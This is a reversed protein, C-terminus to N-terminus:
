YSSFPLNQSNTIRFSTEKEFAWANQNHQMAESQKKGKSLVIGQVERPGTEQPRHSERELIAERLPSMELPEQSVTSPLDNELVWM